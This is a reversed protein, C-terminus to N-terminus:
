YIKIRIGGPLDLEMRLPQNQTNMDLDSALEVFDPLAARPKPSVKIPPDAKVIENYQKKCWYNFSESEFGHQNAFSKRTLGSERWQEVLAFMQEKKSM